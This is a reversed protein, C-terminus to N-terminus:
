HLGAKTAGRWPVLFSPIFPGLTPILLRVNNAAPTTSAQERALEACSLPYQRAALVSVTFIVPSMEIASSFTVMLKAANGSAGIRLSFGTSTLATNSASTFAPM